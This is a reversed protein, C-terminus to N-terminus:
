GESRKNWPINGKLSESIRRRTEQSVVRGVMRKRLVEKHEKSITGGANHGKTFSGSNPLQKHGMLAASIKAKKEDSCRKGEGHKNGICARSLKARSEPCWKIGRISKGGFSLNYGMKPNTSGLAAIWLRELNDADENTQACTLEEIVFNKDGHNKISNTLRRCGTNRNACAIHAKLRTKIGLSTQGVYYKGTKLNTILYITIM